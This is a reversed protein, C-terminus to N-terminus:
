YDLQPEGINKYYTEHTGRPSCGKEMDPATGPDSISSAVDAIAAGDVPPATTTPAYHTEGNSFCTKDKWLISM